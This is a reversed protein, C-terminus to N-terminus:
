YGFLDFRNAGRMTSARVMSSRQRVPLVYVAGGIL